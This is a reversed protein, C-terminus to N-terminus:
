TDSQYGPVSLPVSLPRFSMSGDGTKVQREMSGDGTKRIKKINDFGRGRSVRGKVGKVCLLVYFRGRTDM